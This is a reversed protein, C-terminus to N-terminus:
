RVSDLLDGLSFEVVGANMDAAGYYVLVTEGREVIGTPFVVDPLFGEREFDAEPVMIPEKSRGLIHQPRDPDLLLTGASYVGVASTELPRAHGHYIELWGEATRIPPTGGGIRGVEWLGDGTQFPEHKGWHILDPSRALWMEPQTFPIDGSPRHLAFYEGGIREPFLLVDKNETHFIIGHREFAQFDTTSALATAAGHRSVAVYTFYYRDGIRTIRPDEVGFEEYETEPGFRPGEVSRVSRGDDSRIVQLHSIFTIRALGTENFHVVRPDLLTLEKEPVWDIVLGRSIDWRPLGMLGDRREKPREAVRVLLVVEGDVAIAGPNFTGVVELDEHSPELDSPRILCTNFLRNLM